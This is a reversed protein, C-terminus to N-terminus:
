IKFKECLDTMMKNNLNTGNDTIIHSPLGYRCILDQKIFKVVVHITVNPYSTAEVVMIFCYGNSARLEIPGIMVLGWMSFPWSTTLSNLPTSLLHINDAYVQCKRCRKVHDCCDAEMKAWYYSARLIKRAMAHGNAHSGFTGEHIQELIEKDKQANVYCLLTMYFIRKYLVEGDLLFGMALRRLM